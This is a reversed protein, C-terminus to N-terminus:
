NIKSTEGASNIEFLSIMNTALKNIDHAELLMQKEESTFPCAQAISRILLDLPAKQIIKWDTEINKKMFYLKLASLFKKKNINLTERTLDQLFDTYKVKTQIYGRKTVKHSIINYRCIGSLEILYKDEATETFHIIKGVCGINYFKTKNGPQIMGILRNSSIADDTMNLYRPEFINLKLCGKPLLLCNKLPFVPIEQPLDKISKYNIM